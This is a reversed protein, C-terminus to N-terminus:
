GDDVHIMEVMKDQPLGALVHINKTDNSAILTAAYHVPQAGITFREFNLTAAHVGGGGGPGTQM